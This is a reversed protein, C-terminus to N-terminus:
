GRPRTRRASTFTSQRISSLHHRPKRSVLPRRTWSAHVHLHGLAQHRQERGVACAPRNSALRDDDGRRCTRQEALEPHLTKTEVLAAGAGVDVSTRSAVRPRPPMEANLSRPSLRASFASHMPSTIALEFVPPPRQASPLAWRAAFGKPGAGSAGRLSDPTLTGAAVVSGTTAASGDKVASNRSGDRSSTRCAIPSPVALETLLVTFPDPPLALSDVCPQVAEPTGDVPAEVRDAEVLGAVRDAAGVIVGAVRDFARLVGLGVLDLVSGVVDAVCSVGVLFGALLVLVLVPLVTIGVVLALVVLVILGLGLDVAVAVPLPGVAVFGVGTVDRRLSVPRVDQVALRIGVLVVLVASSVLVAGPLRALGGEGLVPVVVVPNDLGDFVHRPVGVLWRLVPLSLPFVGNPDDASSAVTNVDLHDHVRDALDDRAIGGTTFAHM